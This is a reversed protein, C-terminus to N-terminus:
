IYKRLYVFVRPNLELGDPAFTKEEDFSVVFEAKVFEYVKEISSTSTIDTLKVPMNHEIAYKLCDETVFVNELLLVM